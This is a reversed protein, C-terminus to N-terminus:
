RHGDPRLHQRGPRIQDRGPCRARPPDVVGVMATLQLGQVLSPLDGEPDFAKPDINKVAAAMIRLGQGGLCDQEPGARENQEDGWPVIAGKALASTARGIV